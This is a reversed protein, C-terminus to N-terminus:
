PMLRGNNFIAITKGAGDHVIITQHTLRASAWRAYEQADETTLFGAKPKPYAAIRVFFNFQYM